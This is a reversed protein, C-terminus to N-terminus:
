VAVAELPRPRWRERAGAQKHERTRADEGRRSALIVQREVWDAFELPTMLNVKHDCDEPADDCADAMCSRAAAVLAKMADEDSFTAVWDGRRKMM